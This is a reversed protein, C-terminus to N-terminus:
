SVHPSGLASSVRVYTYGDDAIQSVPLGATGLLEGEYHLEQETAVPYHAGLRPGRFQKGVWNYVAVRLVDRTNCRFRFTENWTCPAAASQLTTTSQSKSGVSVVAYPHIAVLHSVSLGARARRCVRVCVKPMRWMACVLQM